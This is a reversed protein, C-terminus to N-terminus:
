YPNFNFGLLVLSQNNTYLTYASRSFQYSLTTRLFPTMEYTLNGTATYTHSSQFVGVSALNTVTQGNFSSTSYGASVAGILTVKPTWLYSFGVTANENLQLNSLTSTSVSAVRAVSAHINLKPTASWAFSLSYTPTFKTAFDLGFSANKSAVAGISGIVSLNPSFNKTYTLNVENQLVNRNIGLVGLATPRNPYENGTLTTTLQLSNTNAVAYNVGATVFKTQSNNLLNLGGSNTSSSIGSNFIASYNGTIACNATENFSVTSTTNIVNIGIQQSPLSEASVDSFVLRGSCKSTYIWNMGADLNHHQTDFNSHGLYRTLGFSGDAFFQQAGWNFKTSAGFDSISEFGGVPRLVMPVGNIVSSFNSPTNLINDNYGVSESLHLQFPLDAWNEPLKPLAGVLLGSVGPGLSGGASAEQAQAVSVGGLATLAALTFAARVM